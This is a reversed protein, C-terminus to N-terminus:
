FQSPTYEKSRLRVEQVELLSPHGFQVVISLYLLGLRGM